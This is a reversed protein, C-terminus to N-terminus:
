RRVLRIQSGAAYRKRPALYQRGIVIGVNVVDKLDMLFAGAGVEIVGDVIGGTIGGGEARTHIFPLDPRKVPFWTIILPPISVLTWYVGERNAL